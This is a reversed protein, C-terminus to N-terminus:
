TLGVPAAPAAPAKEPVPKTRWISAGSGPGAVASPIILGTGLALAVGALLKSYRMNTKM